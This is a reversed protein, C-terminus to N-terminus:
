CCTSRTSTRRSIWGQGVCVGGIERLQAATIWGHFDHDDMIKAIHELRAVGFATKIDMSALYLTTGCQRTGDNTEQGGAVGLTKAAIADDDGSPVPVSAM